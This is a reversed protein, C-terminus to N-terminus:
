GPILLRVLVWAALLGCALWMFERRLVFVILTAAGLAVVCGIFVAVAVAIQRNEEPSCEGGWLACWGVSFAFMWALSGVLFPVGLGIGVKVRRRRTWEPWPAEGRWSALSNRLSTRSMFQTDPLFGPWYM